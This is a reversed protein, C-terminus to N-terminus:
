PHRRVHPGLRVAHVLARFGPTGQTQSLLLPFLLTRKVRCPIQSLDDVAHHDPRSEAVTTMM